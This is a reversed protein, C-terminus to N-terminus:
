HIEAVLMLRHHMPWLSHLSFSHSASLVPLQASQCIAKRVDQLPFSLDGNNVIRLYSAM